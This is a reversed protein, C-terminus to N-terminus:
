RVARPATSRRSAPLGPLPTRCWRRRLSSAARPSGAPARSTATDASSRYLTARGVGFWTDDVFFRWAKRSESWEMVTKPSRAKLYRPRGSHEGSHVYLGNVARVGAGEVTFALNPGPRVCQHYDSGGFDLFGTAGECEAPDRPDGSKCCAGGKGCFTECMGAQGGCPPLCHAGNSSGERLCTAVQDWRFGEGCLSPRARKRHTSRKYCVKSNLIRRKYELVHQSLRGIVRDVTGMILAYTEDDAWEQPIIDDVSTKLAGWVVEVAKATNGETFEDWSEGIGDFLDELATFYKAEKPFVKSCGNLGTSLIIKIASILKDTEGTKRFDMVDFTIDPASEFAADWVEKAAEMKEPDQKEDPVIKTVLKWLKVQTIEFGYEVDPDDDTFLTIASTIADVGLALLESVKQPDLRRGAAGHEGEQVRASMVSRRAAARGALLAALALCLAAPRMADSTIARPPAATNQLHRAERQELPRLGV